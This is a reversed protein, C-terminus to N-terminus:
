AARPRQGKHKWTAPNYPARAIGGGAAAARRFRGACATLRAAETQALGVRPRPRGEGAALAVPGAGDAGGNVLWIRYRHICPM